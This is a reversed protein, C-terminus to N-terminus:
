TGKHIKVRVCDVNRQPLSLVKDRRLESCMVFMSASAFLNDDRVRKKNTSISGQAPFKLKM